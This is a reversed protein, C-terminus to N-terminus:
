KSRAMRRRQIARGIVGDWQELVHKESFRERVEVARSGFRRRTEESAMLTGMAKALASVDLAPVLIGDIGHRIIEAPGSPCDFSVVAVGHAMAELLANPFGEYRSSLVFLEAEAFVDGVNEVLGALRVRLGRNEVLQELRRREPGEGYIWLEWGPFSAAIRAFADILLDHGKQHALRGIAVVRRGDRAPTSTKRPLDNWMAANPIVEVLSGLARRAFWRRVSDTQVVVADALHYSTLRLVQFVVHMKHMAPDARDSVVAPVGLGRLALLVLVNIQDALSVVVEPEARGVFDRIARIWKINRQLRHRVPSNPHPLVHELSVRSIGSKLAYSEEALSRFTVVWVSHGREAWHNALWCLVREAGGGRAVSTGFFAIRM